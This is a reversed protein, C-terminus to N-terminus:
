AVKAVTDNVALSALPDATPYGILYGQVETCGLAAVAQLQEITEVGEATTDMGLRQALTAVASIIATSAKNDPLGQVFSQDIKIKDFPLRHLYALSAFGTGFDDLAIRVGLDRLAHIIRLAQDEDHIFASETVEIELRNPALGSIALAHVVSAVFGPLRFQVASMNVAVRMDGPLRMAMKCTERFIWDGLPGILGTEEAVPIFRAPSIAGLEPHNWRMLAEFGVVARRALDYIPQFHGAIEGNQLAHRLQYEFENKQLLSAQMAPNFRRWTGKGDAKARYLAMDAHQILDEARRADRPYLAIGVSGGLHVSRGACHFPQALLRTLREAIIGSTKEVDPATIIAAFEDGGLRAAFAEARMVSKLRGAVEQLLADGASHGFQDNVSKFRDIDVFILAAQMAGGIQGSHDVLRLTEELKDQFAARNPLGTLVDFHALQEIRSLARSADTVDEAVTLVLPDDDPMAVPIQAIRLLRHKDAHHLEFPIERQTAPPLGGLLANANKLQRGLVAPKIEGVTKGVLQERAIGLMSVGAQNALVYAGTRASRVAVLSPIHEIVAEAFRRQREADISSKKLNEALDRLKEENAAREAMTAKLLDIIAGVGLYRENEVVIFGKILEGSHSKLAHQAFDGSDTAADVLLPAPDMLLSIPREGYVSRGYPGALRVLFANREILGIPRREGDIVALLPCDPDSKFRHYIAEGCDDPRVPDIEIAIQRLSFM